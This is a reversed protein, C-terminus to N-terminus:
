PTIQRNLTFVYFALEDPNVEKCEWPTQTGDANIVLVPGRQPPPTGFQDRTARIVLHSRGNYGGTLMQTAQDATGPTGTYQGGFYTFTVNADVLGMGASADDFSDTLESM